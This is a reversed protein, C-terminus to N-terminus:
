SRTRFAPLYRTLRVHDRSLPPSPALGGNELSALFTDPALSTMSSATVGSTPWHWPGNGRLFVASILGPVPRARSATCVLLEYHPDPGFVQTAIGFELPLVGLQYALLL